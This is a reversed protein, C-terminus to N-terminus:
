FNRKSIKIKRKKNRPLHCWVERGDTRLLWMWVMQTEDDYYEKGKSTMLNENCHLYFGKLERKVRQANKLLLHM